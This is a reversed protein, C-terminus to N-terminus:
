VDAPPPAPADTTPAPPMPPQVMPAPPAPPETVPAPPAPAYAPPAPPYPPPPMMPYGPAPAAMAPQPQMGTMKRFFVTWAAHYFSAYAASPVILVVVAIGVMVATVPWAGAIGALVGPVILIAAVITVAIGYVIGVGIQILFMLFAGRKSWLDHWGQKLAEMTRFDKLVVYRLGLEASIGLTVGLFVAVIAFVFVLCGGGIISGVMQTGIGSINGSRVALVLGAGVIGAIVLVLLLVPLAAIFGVGFVRWWKAFGVRWGDRAAVPRGEEAENVLHILGGRAAVSIVLMVLGFLLLFLAILVFVVAYREFFALAQSLRAQTLAQSSGTSTTRTGSGGGNWSGSSGAGAGAFFGFLWLIKYRWIVHWARKLVDTYDM